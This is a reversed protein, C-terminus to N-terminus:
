PQTYEKGEPAQPRLKGEATFRTPSFADIPIPSAGNLILDAIVSGVIPGLQFGHGSFGFAHWLGDVNRSPGIVPIVDPM